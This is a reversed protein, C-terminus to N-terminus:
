NEHWLPANMHLMKLLDAMPDGSIVPFQLLHRHVEPVYQGDRYLVAFDARAVRRRGGVRFRKPLWGSARAGKNRGAPQAPFKEVV